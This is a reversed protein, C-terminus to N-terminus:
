LQMHAGEHWGEEGQPFLKGGPKSSGLPLDQPGPDGLRSATKPPVQPMLNSPLGGGPQPSQMKLGRTHSCTM